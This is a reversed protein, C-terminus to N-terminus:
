KWAEEIFTGLQVYELVASKIFDYGPLLNWLQFICIGTRM